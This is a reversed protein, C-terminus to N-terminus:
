KMCQLFELFIVIRIHQKLLFTIQKLLSEKNINCCSVITAVFIEGQQNHLFPNTAKYIKAASNVLKQKFKFFFHKIHM